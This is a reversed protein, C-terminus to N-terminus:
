AWRSRPLRAVLSPTGLKLTELWRMLLSVGELFKSPIPRPRSERGLM